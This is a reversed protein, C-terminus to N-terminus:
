RDVEELIQDALALARKRMSEDLTHSAGGPAYAYADCEAVFRDMEAPSRIGATAVMRRLADSAEAVMRAGAVAARQTRLAKNRAVEAPDANARRRALVALLMALIGMGYAGAQAGTSMLLSGSPQLVSRIDTAIALDAGTLSFVPRQKAGAGTGLPDDLPERRTDTGEEIPAEAAASVVDDASVVRAPRVSLAVPQSRTTQYEERAPNYWSFALPPIESVGEHLARITVEFRKAGDAYAGSTKDRPVRFDRSSLGGDASLPPLVATEVAADGQLTLTLSIPDGVQVVSRDAAVELRYGPGVTGTFSEPRGATPLDRIVLNRLEDEVRRKQAHTPIRDGFLTRRWRVAEDVMMSAPAIGYDGPKLPIMQRSLTRVLYQEGKWSELRISAPLEISGSAMDVTLTVDTTPNPPDHFRFADLREFLPVSLRPNFLKGRLAAPAWWELQIPVRQGVILPGEPLVLRFRQQSSVAIEGVAVRLERTSAQKGNQSVRFPGLMHEGTTEALFRYEFVFQVRKSQSMRGNIIQVNTSVSPRVGTLTLRGQSPEGVAIEPQPTEEFGEAVVQLHVPVDVYYPGDEKLLRAHQAVAAPSAMQVAAAIALILLWQYRVKRV